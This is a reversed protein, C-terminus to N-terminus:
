IENIATIRLEMVLWKKVQEIIEDDSKVKLNLCNHRISFTDDNRNIKWKNRIAKTGIVSSRLNM